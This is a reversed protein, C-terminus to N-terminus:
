EEDKPLLLKLTPPNKSRRDDFVSNKGSETERIIALTVTGNTDARVLATLQRSLFQVDKGAETTITGLSIVQRSDLLRSTNKFVTGEAKPDYDKEKFQEDEKDGDRIAYVRFRHRGQFQNGDRAKMILAVNRVDKGFDKSDFRLLAFRDLPSSEKENVRKPHIGGQKKPGSERTGRAVSLHQSVVVDTLGDDEEGTKQESHAPLIFASAAIFAMAFTTAPIKM